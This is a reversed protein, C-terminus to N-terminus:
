QKVTNALAYMIAKSQKNQAMSLMDRVRQPSAQPLLSLAYVVADVERVSEDSTRLIQM